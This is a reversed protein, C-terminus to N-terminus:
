DAAKKRTKEHITQTLGRGNNRANERITEERKKLDANIQTLGRGM